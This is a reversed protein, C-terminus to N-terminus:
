ENRYPQNRVARQGTNTGSTDPLAVKRASPRAAQCARQAVADPRTAAPPTLDLQWDGFRRVTHTIHPTGHRGPDRGPAKISAEGHMTGLTWRWRRSRGWGVPPLLSHTPRPREQTTHDKPWDFEGAHVGATFAVWETTTFMLTPGRPNKSDRVARGGGDLAAVEVCNGEDTSRSSKKWVLDNM